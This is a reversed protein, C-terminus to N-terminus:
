DEYIIPLDEVTLTDSNSLAVTINYILNKNITASINKNYVIIHKNTKITVTMNGFSSTTPFLIMHRSIVGNITPNDTYILTIKKALYDLKTLVKNSLNMKFNGSIISSASEITVSKIKEGIFQSNSGDIKVKFITLPMEDWIFENNNSIDVYGIKCMYPCDEESNVYQFKPLTFIVGDYNNVLNVSSYPYYIYKPTDGSTLAGTYGPTAIVSNNTSRFKANKTKDGYVGVNERVGWLTKWGSTVTTDFITKIVADKVQRSDTDKTYNILGNVEDLSIQRVYDKLVNTIEDLTPSNYDIHAHLKYIRDFLDGSLIFNNSEKHNSQVNLEYDENTIVIGYVDNIDDYYENFYINSNIDFIIYSDINLVWEYLELLHLNTIQYYYKNVKEGGTGVSSLVKPTIGKKVLLKQWNSKSTDIKLLEQLKM